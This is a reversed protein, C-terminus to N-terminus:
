PEIKSHEFSSQSKAKSRFTFAINRSIFATSGPISSRPDPDIMLM